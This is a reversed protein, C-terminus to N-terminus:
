LDHIRILLRSFRVVSITLRGLSVYVHNDNFDDNDDYVDNELYNDGDDEDDGDDDSDDGDDATSSLIIPSSQSISISPVHFFHLAFFEQATKWRFKTSLLLKIVFRKVNLTSARCFLKRNLSFARCCSM